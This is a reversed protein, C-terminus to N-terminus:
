KQATPSKETICHATLTTIVFMKCFYLLHAPKADGELHSKQNRTRTYICWRRYISGQRCTFMTQAPSCSHSGVWSDWERGTCATYQRLTHWQGSGLEELRRGGSRRRIGTKWHATRKTREENVLTGWRICSVETEEKTDTHLQDEDEESNLHQDLHRCHADDALLRVKGLRPVSEVHENDDSPKNYTMRLKLTTRLQLQLLLANCCRQLVKCEQQLSRRKDTRYQYNRFVVLFLNLNNNRNRNSPKPRKLYM